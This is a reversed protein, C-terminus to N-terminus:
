YYHCWGAQYSSLIFKPVNKGGTWYRIAGGEIVAAGKGYRSTRRESQFLNRWLLGRSAEASTGYLDQENPLCFSRGSLIGNRLSMSPAARIVITIATFVKAGGSGSPGGITGARM